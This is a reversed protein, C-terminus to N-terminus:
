KGSIPRKIIIKGFNEFQIIEIIENKYLELISLFCIIKDIVQEYKSTLEKFSIDTRKDLIIKIREMEDFINISIVQHYILGLDLTEESRSLLKSALLALEKPKIDKLFDPFVNLFQKEIPAERVFFLSEKEFLSSFYYSIKKYTKYEEERRKLINIDLEGDEDESAKSKSPILSRSKIEILISAFYIFGSLTEFLIDKNNNIHAIFGGIISSLKIEYIDVKKKQILELLLYIPGKFKEDVILYDKEATVSGM